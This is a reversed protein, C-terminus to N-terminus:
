GTDIVEHAVEGTPELKGRTHRRRFQCLPLSECRGAGRTRGRVQVYELILAVSSYGRGSDTPTVSQQYYPSAGSVSVQM